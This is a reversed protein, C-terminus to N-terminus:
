LQEAKVAAELVTGLTVAAPTTPDAEMDLASSSVDSSVAILWSHSYRALTTEMTTDLATRSKSASSLFGFTLQPSSTSFVVAFVTFAM